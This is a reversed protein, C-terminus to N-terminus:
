DSVIDMKEREWEAINQERREKDATQLILKREGLFVKLKLPVSISPGFNYCFKSACSEREKM